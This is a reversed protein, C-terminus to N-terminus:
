SILSFTSPYILGFVELAEKVWIFDDFKIKM